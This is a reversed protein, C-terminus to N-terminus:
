TLEWSKGIETGRKCGVQLCSSRDQEVYAAIDVSEMAGNRVYTCVSWYEISRQIYM